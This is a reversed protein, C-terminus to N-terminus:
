AHERVIVVPTEKALSADLNWAAHFGDATAKAMRGPRVADGLVRLYPVRGVLAEALGTQSSRLGVIVVGGLDDVVREEFTHINYLTIEGIASAANATADLGPPELTMGLVMADKKSQAFAAHPLALPLSGLAATTLLTRRKLM